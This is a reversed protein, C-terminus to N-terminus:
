GGQGSRRQVRPFAGLLLGAGLLVLGGALTAASGQHHGTVPMNVLSEGASPVAPATAPRPAPPASAPTAPPPAPTQRPVISPVPPITPSPPSAAPAPTRFEVGATGKVTERSWSTQVLRQTRINGVLVRGPPVTVVAAAAVNVMGSFDAGVSLRAAARGSVSRVTVAHAAPPRGGGAPSPALSGAAASFVVETGDPAAGGDDGTVVATVEATRQAAPDAAAILVQVRAQGTSIGASAQRVLLDYAARYAGDVYPTGAPDLQFGDSFHWIAAQVASSSRARGRRDDGLLAPGNPFAHALLWRVQRPEAVVSVDLSAGDTYVADHRRHTKADICYGTGAAGAADTFGLLGSQLRVHRGGITGSALWYPQALFETALSTGQLRYAQAPSALVPTVSLLALGALVLGLAASRRPSRTAADGRADRYQQRLASGTVEGLNM